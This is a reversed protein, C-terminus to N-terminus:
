TINPRRDLKGLIEEILLHQDVSAELRPLSCTGQEAIEGVIDGILASFYPFHSLVKGEKSIAKYDFVYEVEDVNIRLGEAPSDDPRDILRFSKDSETDEFVWEGLVEEYGARKSPRVESITTGAGVRAQAINMHRQFVDMWHVANCALGWGSGLLEVSTAEREFMCDFTGSGHMWQNVFTPVRALSLCEAFEARSKFLYKELIVYRPELALCQKYIELRPECSTAVVFIDIPADVQALARVLTVNTMALKQLERLRVDHDVLWLEAGPFKTRIGQVYRMGINGVGIICIRM